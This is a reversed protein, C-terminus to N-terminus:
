ANLSNVHIVWLHFIDSHEYFFWGIYQSVYASFKVRRYMLLCSIVTLVLVINTYKEDISWGDQFIFLPRFHCVLYYLVCQSHWQSFHNSIFFFFRKLVKSLNLVMWFCILFSLVKEGLMNLEQVYICFRNLAWDSRWYKQDGITVPDTLTRM